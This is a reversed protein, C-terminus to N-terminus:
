FGTGNGVWEGVWVFLAEGSDEDIKNSYGM